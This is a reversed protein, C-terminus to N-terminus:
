KLAVATGFRASDTMDDDVFEEKDFDLFRQGDIMMSEEAANHQATQFSRVTQNLISQQDDKADLFMDM